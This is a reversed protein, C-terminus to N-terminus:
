QPCIPWAKYAKQLIPSTSSYHAESPVDPTETFLIPQGKSGVFKVYATWTGPHFNADINGVFLSLLFNADIEPFAKIEIVYNLNTESVVKASYDGEQRFMTAAFATEVIRNTDGKDFHQTVCHGQGNPKHFTIQGTTAADYTPAALSASLLASFIM